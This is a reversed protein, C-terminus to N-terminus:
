LGSTTKLDWPGYHGTKRAKKRAEAWTYEHKNGIEEIRGIFYYVQRPLELNRGNSKDIVTSDDKVLFAHGFTTGEIPGQGMVEAHVLVYRDEADPNFMCEDMMAKFAAEYCDGNASM